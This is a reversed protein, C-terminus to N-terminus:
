HSLVCLNNYINEVVALFVNAASEFWLCAEDLDGRAAQGQDRVHAWLMPPNVGAMLKEFIDRLSEPSQGSLRDAKESTRQM